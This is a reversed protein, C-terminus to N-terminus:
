VKRNKSDEQSFGHPYRKNLKMVNRIFVLEEDIEYHKLLHFVYWFLDGVEEILKDRDLEHGHFVVKKLYDALEGAEGAIGLAIMALKDREPLPNMTRDIAERYRKADM